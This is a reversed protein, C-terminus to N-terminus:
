YFHGGRLIGHSSIGSNWFKVNYPELVRKVLVFCPTVLALDSICAFNLSFVLTDLHLTIDQM